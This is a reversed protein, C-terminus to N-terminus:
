MGFGLLLCRLSFPLGPILLGLVPLLAPILLILYIMGDSEKKEKIDEETMMRKQCLDYRNMWDWTEKIKM